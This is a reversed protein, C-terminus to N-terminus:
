SGASGPDTVKDHGPPQQMYARIKERADIFGVAFDAIFGCARLHNIWVAQEQVHKDASITGDKKIPREGDKKLELALGTHGGRPEYIVLDPFGRSCQAQSIKAQAKFGLRIGSLDLHVKAFTEPHTAKIWAVLASQMEEESKASVGAEQIDHLIGVMDAAAWIQDLPDLSQREKLWAMDFKKGM